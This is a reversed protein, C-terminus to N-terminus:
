SDAVGGVSVMKRQHVRMTVVHCLHSWRDAGGCAPLGEGNHSSAEACVCRADHNLDAADDAVVDGESIWECARIKIDHVDRQRM